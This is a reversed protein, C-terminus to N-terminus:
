WAINILVLLFTFYTNLHCINTVKTLVPVQHHFSEYATMKIRSVRLKLNVSEEEDDGVAAAKAKMSKKSKALM